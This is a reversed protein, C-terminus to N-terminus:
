VRKKRGEEYKQKSRETKREGTQRFFIFLEKVKRLKGGIEDRKGKNRRGIGKRLKIDIKKM